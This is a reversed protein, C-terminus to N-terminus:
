RHVKKGGLRKETLKMQLSEIAIDEIESMKVQWSALTCKFGDLVNEMKFMVNSIELLKSHTM